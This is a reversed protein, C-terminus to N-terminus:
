SRKEVRCLETRELDAYGTRRYENHVMFLRGTKETQKELLRMDQYSVCYAGYGGRGILTARMKGDVATLAVECKVKYEKENVCVTLFDDVNREQTTHINRSM